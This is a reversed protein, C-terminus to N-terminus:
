PALIGGISSPESTFLLMGDDDEISTKISGLINNLNNFSRDDLNFQFRSSKRFDNIKNRM